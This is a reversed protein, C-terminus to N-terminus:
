GRNYECNGWGQGCIQDISCEEGVEKLVRGTGVIFVLVGVLEVDEVFMTLLDPDGLVVEYALVEKTEDRPELVKVVVQGKENSGEAQGHVVMYVDVGRTSKGQDGNAGLDTAM